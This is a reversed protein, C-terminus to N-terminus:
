KPVGPKAVVLPQAELERRYFVRPRQVKRRELPVNKAEDEVFSFHLGIARVQKLKELQMQPVRKSAYNLWERLLLQNDRPEVDAAATKLGEEVLAYTLYGHGLKAAELAAQYSQAATLIYMGKEYALQALGKSNMPGRRKEEAELAQGSNCADIVLLMQGANIGAIASELEEDSISHSLISQLGVNNLRRPNGSYGLDHPVLFFRNGQATGHGAFYIVVADEPQIKAPLDTLLKLINAKTANTDQLSIVEVREYNGLKTQQRKLEEAFDQSDAVAYKLNYGPNAYQNVGVALVYAIGQRKLTEAGNVVLTADSSKVNDSNFAYATLRNEGAIIPITVEHTASAQGRLVDGAWLKVLSGNRFLRVDRAGAGAASVEIKLTVERTNLTRDPLGDALTLKLEPQRRDKQAVSKAAKPRSGAIIESLLEPYYFDNFFWEVPAVDFLNDSFRWLMQKWASPSGDFLGEPTVVLWGGDKFSLLTAVQEWTDVSWLRIATDTCGVALIKGDASFAASQPGFAGGTLSRLLRGDAASHIDVLGNDKGKMVAMRSDPSFALFSAKNASAEEGDPDAYLNSLKRGTRVELLLNSVYGGSGSGYTVVLRRGDPSFELRTVLDDVDSFSRLLRGTAVDYFKLRAGEVLGFGVALVASDPALALDFADPVRLRHLLRGSAMDHVDINPENMVAYATTGLAINGSFARRQRGTQLNLIRGDGSFLLGGDSSFGVFSRERYTEGPPLATFTHTLIGSRTDWLEYRHKDTFQSGKTAALQRGDRSFTLSEVADISGELRHALAGEPESFLQFSEAVSVVLLRGDASFAPNAERAGGGGLTFPSSVQHLLQGSRTSWLELVTLYQDPKDTKVERSLLVSTGDPNFTVFDRDNPLPLQRWNRTDWLEMQSGTMFRNDHRVILLRGDASFSLVSALEEVEASLNRANPNFPKYYGVFSHTVAVSAADLVDLVLTDNWRLLTKSAPSYSVIYGGFDGLLNGNDGSCVKGKADLIMRSDGLFSLPESCAALKTVARGTQVEWVMSPETAPVDTSTALLRSDPSFTLSALNATQAIKHVLRGTRADWLKLHDQDAAAYFAGNPSLAHPGIDTTVLLKGTHVQWMRDTGDADAEANSQGAMSESVLVQSDSSFEVKTVRGTHGVLTRLLQGTRTDWLKITSDRSGTALVRGDANFAVSMVVDAHGAQVVVEPTQAWCVSSVFVLLAPFSLRQPGIINM